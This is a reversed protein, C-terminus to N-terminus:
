FHCISCCEYSFINNEFTVIFYGKIYDKNEYGDRILCFYSNKCFAFDTLYFNNSVLKYFQQEIFKKVLLFKSNDFFEEKSILFAKISKLDYKNVM